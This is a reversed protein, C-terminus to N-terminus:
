LHFLYVRMPAYVDLCECWCVWLITMGVGFLGHSVDYQAISKSVKADHETMSQETTIIIVAM